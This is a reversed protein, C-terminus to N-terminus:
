PLNAPFTIAVEYGGLRSARSAFAGGLQQAFANMLSSGTGAQATEAAGTGDDLVAIECQADDDCTLRVIIQGDQRGNFAHKYANTVAETVFLAMPAAQDPSLALEDCEVTVRVTSEYGGLVDSLNHILDQLFPHIEIFRLDDTEYLSRHVLALANIRRRADMLAEAAAKDTVRGAQLNLLSVIVQLNNKVRHHIERLLGSRQDVAEALESRQEDLSAAMQEMVAALRAVERPAKRARQPVLDLRGAAYLQAIRQLYTLWRLIFYDVAVWVCVLVLLTMLAPIAITSIVSVGQWSQFVRAPAAVAVGLREPILSAVIVEYGARVGTDTARVIEDTRAQELLSGPTASEFIDISATGTDLRFVGQRSILAIQAEAQIRERRVLSAAANLDTAVAVVGDFAPLGSSDPATADDSILRRVTLVIHRQSMAGFVVDSHARDAGDRLSIFWDRDSYDTADEAPELASCTLQGSADIIAINSITNDANTMRQLAAMCAAPDTALAAAQSAIAGSMGDARSFAATIAESASMATANLRDIERQRQAEYEMIGQVSSLVLLPMLALVLVALLQIRLGRRSGGELAESLGGLM